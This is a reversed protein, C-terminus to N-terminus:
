GYPNRLVSFLLITGLIDFAFEIIPLKAFIFTTIPFNVAVDMTMLSTEYANSVGASFFITLPILIIHVFFLIPHSRLFFLMIIAYVNLALLFSPIAWDFSTMMSMGTALTANAISYSQFVPVGQFVSILKTVVFVALVVAFLMIAITAGDTQGRKNMAM